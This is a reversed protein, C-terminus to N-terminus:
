YFGLPNIVMIKKLVEDLEILVGQIGEKSKPLKRLLHPRLKLFHSLM